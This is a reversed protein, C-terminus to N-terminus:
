KVCITAVHYRPYDLFDPPFTDEWTPLCSTELTRRVEITYVGPEDPATFTTSGSGSLSDGGLGESILCPEPDLHSFGLQFQIICFPCPTFQLHNYNLSVTFTSGPAVTAVNSGGDISVGTASWFEDERVFNPVPASLPVCDCVPKGESDFGTLVLSNSPWPEGGCNFDKIPSSWTIEEQNAKCHRAPSDGIAVRTIIGGPGLCGTYTVSVDEAQAFGTLLSMALLLVFVVMAVKTLRIM